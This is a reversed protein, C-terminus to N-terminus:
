QEAPAIEDRGGCSCATAVNCNTGCSAAYEPIAKANDTTFTEVADVDLNDLNLDIQKDQM